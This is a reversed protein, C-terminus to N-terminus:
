GYVWQRDSHLQADWTAADTVMREVSLREARWGLEQSALSADALLCAAEGPRRPWGLAGPERRVM